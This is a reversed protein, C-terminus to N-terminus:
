PHNMKMRKLRLSVQTEVTRKTKKELFITLMLNMILLMSNMLVKIENSIKGDACLVEFDSKLRDVENRVSVKDISAM